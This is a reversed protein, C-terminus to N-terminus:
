LDGQMWNKIMHLAVKPQDWPVNHGSDYVKIFTLPEHRTMLGSNSEEVKFTVVESNIFKQKDYWEMNLVWRFNGLRNAILDKDGAYILVKIRDKLLTPIYVELNKAWDGRLATYVPMSLLVFERDSVGLADKVTQKNMFSTLTSYDSSAGRTKRIDKSDFNGTELTQQYISDCFTYADLCATDNGTCRPNLQKIQNYQELTIIRESWAYDPISPHQIKFDTLGNGVAFGKLNIHIREKQRNGELIRSALAPAYHGAYSQGTIFFDNNIFNPYLKFFEQLFDYLDNSISTQNHRIDNNNSTYSLGTGIPQDVYIINSVMDWGYDNWKLYLNNSGDKEIRFPGNGNFISIASNGGPGGTLWIVVPDDKSKRSHFFYYFMRSDTTHPLSLYSVHRALSEILPDSAPLFPFKFEKEILSQIDVLSNDKFIGVDDEPFLNTSRTLKEEQNKPHSSWQQQLSLTIPIDPMGLHPYSSSFKKAVEEQRQYILRRMGNNVNLYDMYARNHKRNCSYGSYTQCLKVSAASKSCGEEKIRAQFRLTVTTMFIFAELTKVEVIEDASDRLHM